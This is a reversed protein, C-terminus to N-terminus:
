GLHSGARLGPLALRRPQHALPHLGREGDHRDPGDPQAPVDGEAGLRLEGAVISARLDQHGDQAQEPDIPAPLLSGNVGMLEYRGVVTWHAVRVAETM